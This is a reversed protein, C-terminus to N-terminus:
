PGRHSHFGRSRPLGAYSADGSRNVVAYRSERIGSIAQEGRLRATACIGPALRAPLRPRCSIGARPRPIRYVVPFIRHIAADHAPEESITPSTITPERGATKPRKVIDPGNPSGDPLVTFTGAYNRAATHFAVRAGDLAPSWVCPAHPCLNTSTLASAERWGSKRDSPPRRYSATFGAM